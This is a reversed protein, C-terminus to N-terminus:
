HLMEYLDNLLYGDPVFICYSKSGYQIQLANSYPEIASISTHRKDFGAFKEIFITRKNTVFLTGDFYEQEIHQGVEKRDSVGGGWRSGQFLGPVSSGWYRNIYDKVIKESMLRANDAYYCVEGKQLYIEDTDISPLKGKFIMDKDVQAMKSPIIPYNPKPQGFLWDLFGM